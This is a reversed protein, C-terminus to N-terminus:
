GSFLARGLRVMTSGEEIAIRYDNSIGMSLVDMSPIAKHCEEFLMRMRRFYPRTEEAPTNPAIAMLGRLRLHPIGSLEKALALVEEPAVGQRQVERTINVELLIDMRKGLAACRRGLVEAARASDISQVMDFLEAINRAKNRQVPGLMHWRLGPIDLLPIKREAEQVRNEGFDRLGLSAAERIREHPQGKTVALLVVGPPIFSRVARINERLMRRPPMRYEDLKGNRWPNM